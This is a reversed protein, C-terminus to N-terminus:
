NGETEMLRRAGRRTIESEGSALLIHTSEKLRKLPEVDDYWHLPEELWTIDLDYM